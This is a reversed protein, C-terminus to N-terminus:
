FYIGLALDVGSVKESDWLSSNIYTTKEGYLEGSIFFNENIHFVDGIGTRVKKYSKSEKYNSHSFYLENNNGIFVGLGIDHGSIDDDDMLPDKWDSNGTSLSAALHLNDFIGEVSFIFVTRDLEDVIPSGDDYEASMSLLAAGISLNDEIYHNVGVGFAGGDVDVKSVLVGSFKEELEGGFSDLLLFVGTTESVYHEVGVMLSGVGYNVEYTSVDDEFVYGYGSTSFTLSSPHQLFERAGLPTNEDTTLDDFFRTYGLSFRGEGVDGGGGIAPIYDATGGTSSLGIDIRNQAAQSSGVSFLLITIFVILIRIM